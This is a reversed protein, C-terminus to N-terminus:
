FKSEFLILFVKMHILFHTGVTIFFSPVTFFLTVDNTKKSRAISERDYDERVRIVKVRYNNCKLCFNNSNHM